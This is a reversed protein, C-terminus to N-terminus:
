GAAAVAERFSPDKGLRVVRPWPKRGPGFRLATYREFISWLLLYAAQLRFFSHWLQPTDPQPGVGDPVVDDVVRRVEDLGETFVPDLRASWQQVNEEASGTRVRRGELVNAAIEEQGSFTTAIGWKYQTAPEFSCVVSWADDLRSPDFWLLWGSVQGHQDPDFLPIGDRLWLTGRAMARDRRSVFAGLQPFALEGPKLLGYAFFPLALDDPQGVTPM